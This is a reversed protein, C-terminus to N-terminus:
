LWYAYLDYAPMAYPEVALARMAAFVAIVVVFSPLALRGFDIRDPREAMALCTSARAPADNRPDPAESSGPSRSPRPKRWSTMAATRRGSTPAGDSSPPPTASAPPRSTIPPAGSCVRRGR